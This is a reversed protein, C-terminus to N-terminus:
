SVVCVDLHDAADSQDPRRAYSSAPQWPEFAATPYLRPSLYHGRDRHEGRDPRTGRGTLDVHLNREILQVLPRRRAQNGLIM